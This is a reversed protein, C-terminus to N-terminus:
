WGSAEDAGAGTEAGLGLGSGAENELGDGAGLGLGLGSGVPTQRAEQQGVRPLPTSTEALLGAGSDIQREELSEARLTLIEAQSYLGIAEKQHDEINKQIRTSAGGYIGEKKVKSPSPRSSLITEREGKLREVYQDTIKAQRELERAAERMKNPDKSALANQYVGELNEMGKPASAAAKIVDARDATASQMEGSVNAAEQEALRAKEAAKKARLRAAEAQQVAAAIDAGINEARNLIQGLENLAKQAVDRQEEIKAIHAALDEATHNSLSSFKPGELLYDLPNGAKKQAEDAKAVATKADEQIKRLADAIGETASSNIEKIRSSVRAVTDSVTQNTQKATKAINELEKGVCVLKERASLLGMYERISEVRESAKEVQARIHEQKGRTDKGTTNMQKVLDEASAQIMDLEGDLGDLEEALSQKTQENIIHRWEPSFKEFDQRLQKAQERMWSLQQKYPSEMKEQLDTTDNMAVAKNQGPSEVPGSPQCQKHQQFKYRAYRCIEFFMIGTGVCVMTTLASSQPTEASFTHFFQSSLSYYINEM